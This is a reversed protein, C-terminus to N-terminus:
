HVIGKGSIRFLADPIQEQKRFCIDCQCRQEQARSPFPDM